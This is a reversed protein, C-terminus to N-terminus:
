VHRNNRYLEIIRQATGATTYAANAEAVRLAGASDVFLGPPIVGSRVPFQSQYVGNLNWTQGRNNFGDSILLNSGSVAISYPTSFQGNGHRGWRYVV